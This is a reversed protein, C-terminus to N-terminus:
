EKAQNRLPCTNVGLLAWLPCYRAGGTVLVVGGVFGIAGVVWTPLGSLAAVGVALLGLVLQIKQEVGGVNKTM